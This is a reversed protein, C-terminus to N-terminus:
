IVRDLLSVKKTTTEQLIMALLWTKWCTLLRLLGQSFGKFAPGHSISPCPLCNYKCPLMSFRALHLAIQNRAREIWPRWSPAWPNGKFFREGWCQIGNEECCARNACLLVDSPASLTWFSWKTDQVNRHEDCSKKGPFNIHLCAADDWTHLVFGHYKSTATGMNQTIAAQSCPTCRYGTLLRNRALSVYRVSHTHTHTHTHTRAHTRTQTTFIKNTHTHTHTHTHTESHTDSHTTHTHTTHLTHTATHHTHTHTHHTTHTGSHTLKHWHKQLTNTHTERERETHTHHTYHTQRQTHTQKHWHKQLTRPQTHKHAECHSICRFTHHTHTLTKTTHTHTHTVTHTVKHTTHTHTHHTHTYTHIYAQSSSLLGFHLNLISVAWYFSYILFWFFIELLSGSPPEALKDDNLCM